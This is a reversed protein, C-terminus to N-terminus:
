FDLTKIATSILEGELKIRKEHLVSKVLENVIQKKSKRQKSSTFMVIGGSINHKWHIWPSSKGYQHPMKTFGLSKMLRNNYITTDM